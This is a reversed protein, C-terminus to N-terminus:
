HTYCEPTWGPPMTLAAPAYLDQLEAPPDFPHHPKIFSVTLLNGGDDWDNVVDLAKRAAWETSHHKLPLNSALAGCTDWYAQRAHQRYERVQDELDNVDCLGLAMLERHYDDDWRGDGDQESLIMRDYGVDLYTPTFHM